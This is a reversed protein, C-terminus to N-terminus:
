ADDAKFRQPAHGEFVSKGGGNLMVVSVHSRHAGSVLDVRIETASQYKKPPLSTQM